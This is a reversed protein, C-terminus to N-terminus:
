NSQNLVLGRIASLDSNKAQYASVICDGSPGFGSPNESGILVLHNNAQPLAPNAALYGSFNDTTKEWISNGTNADYAGFVTRNLTYSRSTIQTEPDYSNTFSSSYSQMYVTNGDIMINSFYNDSGGANLTREWKLDGTAMDYVRIFGLPPTSYDSKQAQGSVICFTPTWTVSPFVMDYQPLYNFSKQWLLDGAAGWASSGTAMIWLMVLSALFTSTRNM